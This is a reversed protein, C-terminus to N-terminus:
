WWVYKLPHHIHIYRDITIFLISTLDGMASFLTIIGYATCVIEYEITSKNYIYLILNAIQQVIQSLFAYMLDFFALMAIFNNTQAKLWSFKIISIIVLGNGFTGVIFVFVMIIYDFIEVVDM